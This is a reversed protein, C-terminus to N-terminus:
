IIFVKRAQDGQVISKGVEHRWTDYVPDHLDDNGLYTVNGENVQFTFVAGGPVTTKLVVVMGNYVDRTNSPLLM